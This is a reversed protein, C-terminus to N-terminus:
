LTNTTLHLVMLQKKSYSSINSAKAGEPVEVKLSPYRFDNWLGYICGDMQSVMEKKSALSCGSGARWDGEWKGKGIQLGGSDGLLWSYERDRERYQSERYMDKQLDPSAHGASHLSWKYRWM